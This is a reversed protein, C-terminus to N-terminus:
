TVKMYGCGWCDGSFFSVKCMEADMKEFIEMQPASHNYFGGTPQCFCPGVPLKKGIAFVNEIAQLIFNSLIDMMRSQKRTLKVKYIFIFAILCAFNEETFRTIYVRFSIRRHCRSHLSHHRDMHRDLLPIDHLGM